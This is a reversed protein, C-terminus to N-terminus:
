VCWVRGSHRTKQQHLHKVTEQSNLACVGHNRGHNCGLVLGAVSRPKEKRSIAHLAWHVPAQQRIGRVRRFGGEPPKKM